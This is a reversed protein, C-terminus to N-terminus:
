KLPLCNEAISQYKGADDFLSKGLDEQSLTQLNTLIKQKDADNAITPIGPWRLKVPIIQASCVHGDARMKAQLIVSEGLRGDLRFSGWASFNGLSYAILRDQYIEMARLVHPGHGLVLDAGAEVVAHAFAYVNGRDEGYFQESQKSVRYAEQGEAGAHFSVWILDVQQQYSSILAQAREIDQVLFDEGGTAFAFLAISMGKAQIIVPQAYRGALAIPSQAFASLTARMGAIGFDNAHNNNHSLLDFGAQELAGVFHSPVRFAFCKKSNKCKKSVGEDAIVTELNAFSIDAEQLYPAIEKFLAWGNDDALRKQSFPWAKGMQVDGVAAVSLYPVAETPSLTETSVPKHATQPPLSSCASLLLVATVMYIKNLM